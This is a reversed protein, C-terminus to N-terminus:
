ISFGMSLKKQSRLSHACVHHILMPRKAEGIWNLCDCCTDHMSHVNTTSLKVIFVKITRCVRGEIMTIWVSTTIKMWMEDNECLIFFTDIVWTEEWKRCESIGIAYMWKEIYITIGAIGNLLYIKVYIKMITANVMYWAFRLAISIDPITYDVVNM